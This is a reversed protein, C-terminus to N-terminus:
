PLKARLRPPIRRWIPLLLRRTVAEIRGGGLLSQSRFFTAFALVADRCEEVPVQRPELPGSALTVAFRDSSARHSGTGDQGINAALAVNPYLTFMGALFASAHWRVAWSDTRGAIQDRLMQSFPAPGGMDFDRLLNREKLENLLAEGDPRYHRWARRWTAWGWCDAGRVFFTPPLSTEHPYVYAHISAVLPEDAYLDLQSNMYSLFSPAVVIDDELVVVTEYIQLLRSVGQTISRSLGLNISSQSVVVKRFGSVSRALRKVEDIRLTDKATKPGDIFLYLQTRAAEPNAQLSDIVRALHEPRRWAFVAVPALDDGSM